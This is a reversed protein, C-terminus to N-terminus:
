IGLDDEDGFDDDIEDRVRSRAMLPSSVESQISTEMTTPINSVTEEDECIDDISHLWDGAYEFNEAALANITFGACTTERAAPLHISIENKAAHKVLRIGLDCDMVAGTNMALSATGRSKSYKYASRENEQLISLIPIGTTKAIQKLRRNVMSLQKWDLASGGTGPLELMYSSDLMVFHPRYAEIKRRIDDPGGVSGDMRDAQTFWFGGDGLRNRRDIEALKAEFREFEEPFLNGEKVRDYNVKTLLAAMRRLIKKWTMEKSYILVRRGTDVLHAAVILGFWTKMSKPMAWVMIYDGDQIGQTAINLRPWPWPMGIMGDSERVMHYETMVEEFGGKHFCRDTDTTNTELLQGLQEHLEQVKSIGNNPEVNSIYKNIAREGEKRLHGDRVKECLDSFNEVPKPLDLAPFQELLSQESPVHGFNQPRRYNADITAWLNKAEMGGFTRFTIGENQASEFLDPPSEGRVISAILQLEWNAAM